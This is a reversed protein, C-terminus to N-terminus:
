FLNNKNASDNKLHNINFILFVKLDDNINEFLEELSSEFWTDMGYSNKLIKGYSINYKDDDIQHLIIRFNSGKITCYSGFGKISEYTFFENNNFFEEM